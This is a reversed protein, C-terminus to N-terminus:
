LLAQLAVAPPLVAEPAARLYRGAQGIEGHLASVHHQQPSQRKQWKQLVVAPDPTTVLAPKDNRGAQGTEPTTSCAIVLTHLTESGSQSAGGISESARM